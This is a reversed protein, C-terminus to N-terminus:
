LFPQLRSKEIKVEEQWGEFATYEEIINKLRRELSTEIELFFGQEKKNWLSDPILIYGIVRSEDEGPTISNTLNNVFM